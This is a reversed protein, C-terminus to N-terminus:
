LQNMLGESYQNVSTLIRKVYEKNISRISNNVNHESNNRNQIMENIDNKQINYATMNINKKHEILNMCTRIVNKRIDGDALKLCCVIHKLLKEFDSKIRRELSVFSETEDKLIEELMNNQQEFILGFEQGKAYQNQLEIEYNARRERSSQTIENCRNEVYRNLNLLIENCTCYPETVKRKSYM